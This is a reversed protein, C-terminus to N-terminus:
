DKDLIAKVEKLNALFNERKSPFRMPFSPHYTVYLNITLNSVKIQMLRGRVDELHDFKLELSLAASVGLALVVKPKICALQRILFPKCAAIEEGSPKRNNPPRCKVANTIFTFHRDIGALSLYKDLFKGANGIFPRGFIDENKGPAEGVIVLKANGKGEGPVANKRFNSLDCLKCAKIQEAIIDLSDDM